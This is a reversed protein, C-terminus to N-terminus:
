DLVYIEVRRNIQQDTKSSGANGIYCCLGHGFTAIKSGAFGQSKLYAKAQDARKKGLWNNYKVSGYSDTYGHVELSVESMTLGREKLLENLRGLNRKAETNLFSSDFDFLIALIPRDTPPKKDSSSSNNQESNKTKIVSRVTQNIDTKNETPQTIIPTKVSHSDCKWAGGTPNCLEYEYGGNNTPVVTQQVDLKTPQVRSPLDVQKSACGGLTLLM